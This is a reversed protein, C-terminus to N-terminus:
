RKIALKVVCASTQRAWAVITLLCSLVQTTLQQSAPATLTPSQCQSIITQRRKFGILIAILYEMRQVPVSQLEATKGRYGSKM